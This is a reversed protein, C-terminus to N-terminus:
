EGALQRTIVESGLQNRGSLWVKPTGLGHPDMMWISQTSIAMMIVTMCLYPKPTICSSARTEFIKLQSQRKLSGTSCFHPGGRFELKRCLQEKERILFAVDSSRKRGDYRCFRAARFGNPFLLDTAGCKRRM